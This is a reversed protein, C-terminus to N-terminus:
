GLGRGGGDRDGKQALASCAYTAVHRTRRGDYIDSLVIYDSLEYGCRQLFASQAMLSALMKAYHYGRAEGTVKSCKLNNFWQVELLGGVVRQAGKSVCM